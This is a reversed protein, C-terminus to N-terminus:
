SKHGGSKKEWRLIAQRSRIHVVRLVFLLVAAGALVGMLEPIAYLFALSDGADRHSYRANLYQVVAEEDFVNPGGGNPSKGLVAAAAEATDLYCKPCDERTPFLVKPVRPDTVPTMELRKNIRNHVRWLWLVAATGDHDGRQIRFPESMFDLRCYSCFFFSDIYNRVDVLAASPHASSSVIAHYLLWLGCDFGRYKPQSGRCTRWEISHPTGRYPINAALVCSQWQEVTMQTYADMIRLVKNANLFPLAHSVTELFQVLARHNDATPATMSVEHYLTFFFAGAIDQLNFTNDPGAFAKEQQQTESQKALRKQDLLFERMHRCSSQINADMTGAMSRDYEDIAARLASFDDGDEPLPVVEGQGDAAAMDAVTLRTEDVVNSSGNGNDAPLVPRYKLVTPASKVGRARCEVEYTDCSVAAVLVNTHRHEAAYQAVKPALEQCHGCMPDYYVVVWPCRHANTHTRSLPGTLEVVADSDGFLSSATASAAVHGLWAVVVL